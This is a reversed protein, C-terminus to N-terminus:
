DSYDSQIVKNGQPDESTEGDYDEETENVDYYSEILTRKKNPIVRKRYKNTHLDKVIPNKKM